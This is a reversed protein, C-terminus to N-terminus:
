TVATKKEATSIQQKSSVVLCPQNEFLSKFTKLIINFAVYKSRQNNHRMKANNM